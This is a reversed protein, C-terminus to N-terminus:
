EGKAANEIDDALERLSRAVAAPKGSAALLYPEPGTGPGSSVEVDVAITGSPSLYPSLDRPQATM